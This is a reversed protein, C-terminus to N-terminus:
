HGAPGGRTASDFDGQGDPTGDGTRQPYARRGEVPVYEPHGPGMTMMKIKVYREADAWQARILVGLLSLALLGLLKRIV